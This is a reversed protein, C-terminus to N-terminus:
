HASSIRRSSSAPVNRGRGSPRPRSSVGGKHCFERLPNASLLEYDITAVELISALLGVMNRVTKPALTPRDPNVKRPDKAYSHRQQRAKQTIFAKVDPRTIAGLPWDGFAPLLHERLRSFPAQGSCARSVVMESHRVTPRDEGRGAPRQAPGLFMPLRQHDRGAFRSPAPLGHRVPNGHQQDAAVFQHPEQGRFMRLGALDQPLPFVGPCDHRRVVSLIGVVISEGNKHAGALPRLGSGPVNGDSPFVQFACSQRATGRCPGHHNGLPGIYGRRRPTWSTIEETGSVGAIM